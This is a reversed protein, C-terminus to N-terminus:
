FACQFERGLVYFSCKIGSLIYSTSWGLDYFQPSRGKWQDRHNTAGGYVGEYFVHYAIELVKSFYCLPCRAVGNGIWGLLVFRGGTVSLVIVWVSLLVVRWGRNLFDSGLTVCM